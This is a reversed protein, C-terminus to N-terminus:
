NPLRNFINLVWRMCKHPFDVPQLYMMPCAGGIVTIGNQHCIDVAKQSFSGQGISRHIWVRKIGIEACERVIEETASPKTAIFVGDVKEPLSKLNPYCQEGDIKDANPNIPYVQYNKDRFRQYILNGVAPGKKRSIGAVAIRKQALFDNVKEQLNM